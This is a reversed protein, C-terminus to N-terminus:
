KKFTITVVNTNGDSTAAAAEAPTYRVRNCFGGMNKYGTDCSTVCIGNQELYGESCTSCIKNVNCVSCGVNCYNTKNTTKAAYSSKLGYGTAYSNCQNRTTSNDNCRIFQNYGTYSSLTCNGNNCSYTFGYSNGGKIVTLSESTQTCVEGNCSYSIQSDSGKYIGGGYMRETAVRTRESASTQVCTGSVCNYGVGIYNYPDINRDYEGGNSAYTRNSESRKICNNGNCTYYITSLERDYADYTITYSGCDKIRAELTKSSNQSNTSETGDTYKYVNNCDAFSENIVGFCLIPVSVILVNKIM